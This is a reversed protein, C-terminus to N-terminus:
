DLTEYVRPLSYADRVTRANLRRLDICFKLNGSVMVVTSTWPSSSMRITGVELREKLHKRVQRM